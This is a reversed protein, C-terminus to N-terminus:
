ALDLTRWGGHLGHTLSDGRGKGTKKTIKNTSNEVAHASDGKSLCLAYNPVGRGRAKRIIGNGQRILRVMDFWM